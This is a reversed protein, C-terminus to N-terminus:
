KELSKFPFRGNEARAGFTVTLAGLVFASPICLVAYFDLRLLAIVTGIIALVIFLGALGKYDGARLPKLNM